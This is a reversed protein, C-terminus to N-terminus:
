ASSESENAALYRTSQMETLRSLLREHAFDRLGGLYLSELPAAASLLLKIRRDYFEDVLLLFRRAAAEERPGLRPVGSLLVSHFERAIEIYDAAARPTACLAAFDFWAVDGGLARAPIERGNIALVGPLPAHGGSLRVFDEALRAEGEEAELVYIGVQALTRLRYDVGGDLEFVETHTKLLDIAPVFLARQLGNHYLADPPTNSTTVLTVGRAFLARLLGHLLMADTIDTVLFEDLCLVRARERLQGAVVELPDPQRPLAAMREHVERMFHHFHLRLTEPPALTEVFWDMLCTKGRGVGGWLYLGRVPPPAGRLRARMQGLLGRARPPPPTAVLREALDRLRECAAQQAP